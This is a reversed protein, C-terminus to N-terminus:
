FYKTVGELRKRRDRKAVAPPAAERSKLFEALDSERVKWRPRGTGASLDVARLKGTHIWALVADTKALGLLDAVARPTIFKDPSIPSERSRATLSHKENM